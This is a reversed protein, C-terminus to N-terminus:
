ELKAENTQRCALSHRGNSQEKQGVQSQGAVTLWSPWFGRRLDALSSSCPRATLRCKFHFKYWHSCLSYTWAVVRALANSRSDSTVTPHGGILPFAVNFSLTSPTSYHKLVDSVRKDMNVQGLSGAQLKPAGTQFSVRSVGPWGLTDDRRSQRTKPSPRHHYFEWLRPVRQVPAEDWSGHSCCRLVTSTHSPRVLM